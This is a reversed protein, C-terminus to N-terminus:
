QVAKGVLIARLLREAAAALLEPAGRISAAPSMPGDCIPAMAMLGHEYLEEVGPGLVGALAVVPIRKKGALRAVGAPVKGHATQRDIQGEGTVVLDADELRQSLGVVGAVLEFGSELKAGTFVILGAGLGGAAGAGPAQAVDRALQKKFVAALRGLGQELQDIQAPDAGKQPGYVAAAGTPGCLPNNVDCAVLIEVERLRPDLGDTEIAALDSLSGGGPPLERGQSDLFRAGLERAMGTGGDTTASGGIGIVIQAAGKDLAARILQGTGATTAELPRNKERLAKLGSAAAMEIVATVVGGAAVFRAWEAKVASGLPGTVITSIKDAGVAAAIADVTGEGGDAMPVEEIVAAPLAARLGRSIAEAAQRASLSGKFKDPAVVIKV